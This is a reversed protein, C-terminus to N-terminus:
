PGPFNVCQRYVALAEIAKQQEELVGGLERYADRKGGLEISKELYDRATELQGVRRALKGATLLLNPDDPQEKLWRQATELLRDSKVDTNVLGYLYALESSWKQSQARRIVADVEQYCNLEILKHIYTTLIKSDERVSSDANKWIKQLQTSDEAALIRSRTLKLALESVRERGIGHNKKLHPMLLELSEWNSTEEYAQALMAFAISDKQSQACVKKLGDIADAFAGRDMQLRCEFLDILVLNANEAQRANTLYIERRATQRQQEAAYAAGLYSIVPESVHEVASNLLKEAKSWEGLLLHQLGKASAVYKKQGRYRRFRRGLRGPIRVVNALVELGVVLLIVLSVLLVTALVLTLELQWVGWQLLIYGPEDILFVTAVSVVFVLALLILLYIM